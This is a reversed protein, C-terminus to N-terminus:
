NACTVSAHICVYFCQFVPPDDDVTSITIERKTGDMVDNFFAVCWPLLINTYNFEASALALLINRSCLSFFLFFLLRFVSASSLLSPFVFGSQCPPLVDSFQCSFCVDCQMWCLNFFVNAIIDFEHMVNLFVIHSYVAGVVVIVIGWCRSRCISRCRWEWGIHFHIHTHAWTGHEDSGYTSMCTSIFWTFVVSRVWWCKQEHVGHVSVHTSM